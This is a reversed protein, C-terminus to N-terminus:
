GPGYDTMKSEDPIFSELAYVARKTAFINGFGQSDGSFSTSLDKGKMSFEGARKEGQKFSIGEGTDRTKVGTM